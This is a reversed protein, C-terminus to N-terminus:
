SLGRLLDTSETSFIGHYFLACCGTRMYCAYARTMIMSIRRKEM